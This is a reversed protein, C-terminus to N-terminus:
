RARLSGLAGDLRSVGRALRGRGSRERRLAPDLGARRMREPHRIRPAFADQASRRLAFADRAGAQAVCPGGQGQRARRHAETGQQRAHIRAPSVAVVPLRFEPRALRPIAHLGRADDHEARGLVPHAAGARARRALADQIGPELDDARIQARTAALEHLCLKMWLESAQHIVIFLMEDHQGSLPKQATLVKDLQLYQSYSVSKDLDWHIGAMPDAPKEDRKDSM